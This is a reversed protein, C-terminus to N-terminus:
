CAVYGDQDLSRTITAKGDRVTCTAVLHTPCRVSPGARSINVIWSGDSQKVAESGNDQGLMSRAVAMESSDGPTTVLGAKIADLCVDVAVYPEDSGAPETSSGGCGAVCLTTAVM